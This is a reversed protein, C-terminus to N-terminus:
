RATASISQSVTDTGDSVTVTCELKDGSSVTYWIFTDHTHTTTGLPSTFASGNKKWSFTYTLKDGDADTSPTAIVCQTNERGEPLPSFRLTPKSPPENVVRTSTSASIGYDTGDFPRVSVEIYDGRTTKSPPYTDGTETPDVSHNKKWTYEFTITDGDIDSSYPLEGAIIKDTTTVVTPLSVETLVPPSNQIRVPDSRLAPGEETGDHLSVQCSVDHGKGVEIADLTEGVPKLASGDRYWTYRATLSDGDPDIAKRYACTLTDSSTPEEPAIVVEGVTPLGNGIEVSESSVETSTYAGDSAQAFVQVRSGRTLASAPLLDDPGTQRVAGDIEWRYTWSLTDGDADSGVATAMADDTSRLPVPSLTVSEAIPPVGGKPFSGTLPEGSDWRDSIQVTVHFRHGPVYEAPILADSGFDEGDRTWSYGVSVPDSDADFTEVSALLNGDPDLGLSLSATPPSNGIEVSAQDTAGDAATGTLTWVQGRESQSAPVTDDPVSATTGDAQWTWTVQRDAPADTVAVLDQTSTPHAPEIAVRLEAPPDTDQSPRVYASGEGTHCAAALMGTSLVLVFGNLRRNPAM